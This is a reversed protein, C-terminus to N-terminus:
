DDNPNHPNFDVDRAVSPDHGDRPKPKKRDRAQMRAAAEALERQEPTLHENAM